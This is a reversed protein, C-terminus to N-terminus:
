KKDGKNNISTSDQNHGRIVCHQILRQGAACRVTAVNGCVHNVVSEHAVISWKDYAYQRYPM